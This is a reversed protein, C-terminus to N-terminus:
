EVTSPTRLVGAYDNPLQPRELLVILVIRFRWVCLVGVCVGGLWWGGGWGVGGRVWGVVEGWGCM